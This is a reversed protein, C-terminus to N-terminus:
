TGSAESEGGRSVNDDGDGDTVAGATDSPLAPRTPVSKELRIQGLIQVRVANIETNNARCSGSTEPRYTVNITTGLGCTCKSGALM